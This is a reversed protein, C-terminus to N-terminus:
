KVLVDISKGNAAIPREFAWYKGTSEWVAGQDIWLRITEVQQPTLTGGMPMSPKDLGAVLRYLRSKGSDGPTLVRSASSNSSLDLQSLQTGSGHCKWCSSQFIPRVDDSFSIKRDEAQSWGLAFLFAAVTWAVRSM